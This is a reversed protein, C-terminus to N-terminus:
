RVVRVRYWMGDAGQLVGTYVGPPLMSVDIMGQPTVSVPYGAGHVAYLTLPGAPRALFPLELQVWGSAPNPYVRVELAPV